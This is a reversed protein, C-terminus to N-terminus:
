YRNVSLSLAIERGLIRFRLVLNPKPSQELSSLQQLLAGITVGNLKGTVTVDGEFFDALGGPNHGSVGSVGAAAPNHSIGFV